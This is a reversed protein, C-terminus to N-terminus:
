IYETDFPSSLQESDRIAAVSQQMREVFYQCREETFHQAPGATTLAALFHGHSDLIPVSVGTNTFTFEMSAYGYGNKHTEEVVAKLKERDTITNPTYAVLKRATLNELLPESSFAMMVKGESTCHMPFTHGLRTRNSASSVPYISDLCLVELGMPVTLTMAENFEHCLNYLHPLVIKRFNLQNLAINGLKFFKMGLAYKGTHTNKTLYGMSELTSVINHVNSKYLGLAESLETIGLEQQSFSFCDLLM